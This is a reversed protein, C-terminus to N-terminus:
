RGHNMRGTRTTPCSEIRIFSWAQQGTAPCIILMRADVTSAHTPDYGFVANGHGDRVQGSMGSHGGSLGVLLAREGRKRVRTVIVHRDTDSTGNAPFVEHRNPILYDRFFDLLDTGDIDAVDYHVRQAEQVRATHFTHEQTLLTGM